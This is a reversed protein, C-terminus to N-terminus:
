KKAKTNSKVIKNEKIETKDKLMDWNYGECPQFMSKIFGLSFERNFNLGKIFYKEEFKECDYAVGVSVDYPKQPLAPSTYKVKIIKNTFKAM